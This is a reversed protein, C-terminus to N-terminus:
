STHPVLITRCPQVSMVEHSLVLRLYSMPIGLNRYTDATVAGDRVESGMSDTDGPRARHGGGRRDQGPSLGLDLLHWM